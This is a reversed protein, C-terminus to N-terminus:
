IGRSAPSSGDDMEKDPTALHWQMQRLLVRRM